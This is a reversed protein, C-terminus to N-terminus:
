IVRPYHSVIFMMYAQLTVISTTKLFGANMLAQRAAVRYRAFIISKEGGFLSRCEDEELSYITILYFAFIVAEVSKSIDYPNRLASTITVWFTPLHLPKVL